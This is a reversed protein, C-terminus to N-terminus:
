KIRPDSPDHPLLDQFFLSKNHPNGNIDITGTPFIRQFAFLFGKKVKSYIVNEKIHCKKGLSEVKALLSLTCTPNDPSYIRTVDNVSNFIDETLSLMCM